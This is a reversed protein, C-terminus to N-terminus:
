SCIVILLGLGRPAPEDNLLRLWLFEFSNALWLDEEGCGGWGAGRWERHSAPTVRTLM